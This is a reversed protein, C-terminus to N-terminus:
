DLHWSALGLVVCISQAIDQIEQAKFGPIGGGKLKSFPNFLEVHLGLEGALYRDLNKFNATGGSLYIADVSEGRYRSRYFDFSRQIETVLETLVPLIIHFIRMTTPAVPTTDKEIRIMGKEKKLREADDINLNMGLAIAKTFANGAIGITRSNRLVGEKFINISTSTAGINILALTQKLVDPPLVYRVLRLLAFPELDIAQVQFGAQRIVEEANRVLDKPAAMLLVEMNKEDGPLPRRLAVGDIQADAISYPIYREAEYRISAKIDKDSMVPMTIARIVVTQGTVASVVQKVNSLNNQRILTKVAEALAPIDSIMGDKMALPPTPALALKIVKLGGSSKAMQAIRINTSGIDLGLVGSTRSGFLNALFSV